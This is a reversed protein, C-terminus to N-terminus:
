RPGWCSAGSNQPADIWLRSVPKISGSAIFGEGHDSWRALRWGAGFQTACRADAHERSPLEAARVPTSAAIRAAFWNGRLEAGPDRPLSGDPAVCLLPLSASCETDGKQVDCGGVRTGPLGFCSVWSLNKDTSASRVGFTIGRRAQQYLPDAAASAELQPRSNLLYVLEPDLSELRPSYKCGPIWRAADAQDTACDFTLPMGDPARAASPTWRLSLPPDNGYTLRATLLGGPEVAYEPTMGEIGAAVKGDIITASRAVPLSGTKQLSEALTARAALLARAATAAVVEGM